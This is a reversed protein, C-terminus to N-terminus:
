AGDKGGKEEKEREVEKKRHFTSQKRSSGTRALVPRLFRQVRQLSCVDGWSFRDSQGLDLPCAPSALQRIPFFPLGTMEFKSAFHRNKQHKLVCFDLFIKTRCCCSWCSSRWHRPLLKHYCEKLGLGAWTVAGGSEIFLTLIYVLFTTEGYRSICVLAYRDVYFLM